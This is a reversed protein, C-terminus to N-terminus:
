PFTSEIKSVFSEIDKLLQKCKDILEITPDDEFFWKVGGIPGEEISMKKALGTLM